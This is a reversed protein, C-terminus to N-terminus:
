SAKVVAKLAVLSDRGGANRRVFIIFLRHRVVVLHTDGDAVFVTREFEPCETDCRDLFEQLPSRPDTKSESLCFGFVQEFVIAAPSTEKVVRFFSDILKVDDHSATGESRRKPRATSFPQCSTSVFLVDITNLWQKLSKLAYGDYLDRGEDSELFELADIFHVDSRPHNLENFGVSAPKKDCSFLWSAPVSFLKYVQKESSCGGYLSACNLNRQFEGRLERLPELSEDILPCWQEYVADGTWPKSTEMSPMCSEPMLSEPLVDRGAPSPVKPTVVSTLTDSLPVVLSPPSGAVPVDASASAAVSAVHPASELDGASLMADCWTSIDFGAM